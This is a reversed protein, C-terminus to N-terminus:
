KHIKTSISTHFLLPLFVQSVSENSHEHLIFLVLFHVQLDLKVAVSWDLMTKM